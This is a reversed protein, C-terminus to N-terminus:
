QTKEGLAEMVSLRKEQQASLASQFEDDTMGSKAYERKLKTINGQIEMLKYQAERQANLRLVDVPYSGVKMGMSNALAQSVSLERGFSDTRGKGANKVNEFAYTGPLIVLNPAFAKYLYDMVKIASEKGTDTEQVISKGTFASKNLALEGMLALPGSPVMAPLVPVASNTQGTDFIDGVPVFRRIDLFVPSGNQDNWPMRILKPVLGWISGAKEDPLPKREEDEDGGSLAYGLANLGGALLALKMLKWPKHAAIDMLMPLARYTFAVFPFATQRMMQIWPANIHYDLFSKRASKGAELDSQGDEKAKIWSALRFVQDEQEYLAILNRAEQVVPKGVASAKAADMADGFRLHLLHQLAAMAGVQTTQNQGTLGLEKEVAELLPLMQEKQIEQTIWTGIGGGSDQFRNLIERAAERDSIGALAAMNGVKGLIGKGDRDSAALLIRLAKLMHGAGVDHWDAMVMNAMVNNTHVAPSLATKATKWASLIAAYTEGLPQFRAGALQRVDNWIPGPLYRGALKGYKMVQTGPIKTDPVKVWEDPAFTDRMRESAEVVQGTVRSPDMEGYRDAIWNLYRGTEVDNIMGHLTRAIAFRAEDIEGMAQRESKTFDRWMVLNAGKTDRVEWTGNENWDKFKAPMPEGAPWYAVELLKGDPRGTMGALPATGAGTNARRELRIFKEGKLGKDAKGAQTKRKWWEPAVNQVKSMAVDDVMGRGKYQDGLIAIARQRKGMDRKTMEEMHKAYSRRLYAFRHKKFTEADLQGLRVAEQSLQDIMTRVDKLVQVSEAPLQAEFYDAAQPDDNNMWEYAVRSEARTLTALKEILRETKRLQVRKRGAMMARQDLVAGPVGYDAVVGAKVKEPTLADLLKGAKSYVAKTARDFHVLKVGAKTIADLPRWKATSDALIADARQAADPQNARSFRTKGTRDIGQTGIEGFYLAGSERYANPMRGPSVSDVPGRRVVLTLGNESAFRQFRAPVKTRAPGTVIARGEEDVRFTIGREPSEIGAAARRLATLKAGDIPRDPATDPQVEYESQLGRSM